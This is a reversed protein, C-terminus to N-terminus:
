SLIFSELQDKGEKVLRKWGEEGLITRGLAQHVDKILDVPDEIGVSIRILYDDIGLKNRSEVPVTAHTMQSPLEILSEIGGLSEALKFLRLKKFLVKSPHHNSSDFSQPSIKFIVMGSYPFGRRKSTENTTSKENNSFGMQILKSQSEVPIQSWAVNRLLKSQPDEDDSNGLGLYGVHTVWGLKKQAVDRLYQALQLANTGHRFMRLELTKLGRQVLWCDFASPVAGHANQVFRMKQVLESNNSVVLGLIVDSHGNIYKTASHIVIDAGLAIPQQYIPSMFTNDVALILDHKQAFSSILRIDVLRLTPNSPTEIWIMKTKGPKLVSALNSLIFEPDSVGGNKKAEGAQALFMDLFTVVVGLQPAVQSLYRYTGGYVDAVSILHDDKGLLANIIGGIAASGSSFALGHPLPLGDTRILDDVGELSAILTELDLRNPNSSRSYEFGKHVGVESQAYTTSLSIPTIVAGTSPDPKSGVHVLRTSLKDDNAGVDAGNNHKGNTVIGNQHATM